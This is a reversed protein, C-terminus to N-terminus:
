NQKESIQSVFIVYWFRFCFSTSLDFSHCKSVFVNGKKNPCGIHSISDNLSILSNQIKNLTCIFHKKKIASNSLAAFILFFATLRKKIFKTVHHVPCTSPIFFYIPLLENTGWWFWTFTKLSSTSPWKCSSINFLQNEPSSVQDWVEKNAFTFGKNRCDQYICISKQCVSTM